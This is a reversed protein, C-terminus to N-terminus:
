NTNRRSLSNEQVGIQKPETNGAAGFLYGGMLTPNQLRNAVKIDNLAINIDLNKAKLYVNTDLAINIADKLNVKKIEEITYATLVNALLFILLLIKKM